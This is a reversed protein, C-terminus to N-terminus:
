IHVESVDISLSIILKYENSIGYTENCIRSTNTPPTAMFVFLNIWVHRKQIGCIINTTITKFVAKHTVSIM